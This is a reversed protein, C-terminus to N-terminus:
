NDGKAEQAHTNYDFNKQLLIETALEIQHQLGRTTNDTEEIGYQHLKLDPDIIKGGPTLSTGDSEESILPAKVSFIRWGSFDWVYKPLAAFINAELNFNAWAMAGFLPNYNGGAGPDTTSFGAKLIEDPTRNYTYNVLEDISRLGLYTAM